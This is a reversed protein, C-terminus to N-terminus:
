ADPRVRAALFRRRLELVANLLERSDSLSWAINAACLAVAAAVLSMLSSVSASCAAAMIVFTLHAAMNRVIPRSPLKSFYLLAFYDLFSKVVVAVCAGIIGQWHVGAWLTAAFVPLGVWGVLAARSPDFRAQILVSIISAQANMWVGIVLIRGVPAGAQAMDHGLWLNLFPTLALLATIACPTFAFNLFTLAQNPL